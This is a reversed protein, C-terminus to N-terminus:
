SQHRIAEVVLALARSSHRRSPYYAHLGPFRPCWEQMVSVLRGERVHPLALDETVFALGCGSLAANVMQYAGNFILQGRVKVELSSGQHQLEWAYVGGSSALRLQICNHKMLDEVSNPEPRHAFYEPSGIMAQIDQTM